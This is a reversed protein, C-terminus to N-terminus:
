HCSRKQYLVLSVDDVRRVRQPFQQSVLSRVSFWTGHCFRSARPGAQKLSEICLPFGADLDLRLAPYLHPSGCPIDSVLLFQIKPRGSPSGIRSRLGASSRRLLQERCSVNLVDYILTFPAIMSNLSIFFALGGHLSSHSFEPVGFANGM